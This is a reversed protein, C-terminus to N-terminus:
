RKPDQGNHLHSPKTRNEHEYIDIAIQINQKAIKLWAYVEAPNSELEAYLHKKGQKILPMVAGIWIDKEGVAQDILYDALQRVKQEFMM